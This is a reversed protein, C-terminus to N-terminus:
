KSRRWRAFLLASMERAAPVRLSLAVLWYILAAASAPAFVAGLKLLLNGHGLTREWEHWGWWALAGAMVTALLLAPVAARVSQMDLTTLKRRLAYFLLGANLASTCTNAVGLGGQKYHWVLAGSLLLNLALCFV